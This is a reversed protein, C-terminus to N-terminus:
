YLVEDSEEANMLANAISDNYPTAMSRARPTKISKRRSSQPKPTETKYETRQTYLLEDNMAENLISALFDDTQGRASYATPTPTKYRMNSKPKLLPSANLSVSTEKDSNDKDAPDKDWPFKTEVRSTSRVPFSKFSNSPMAGGMPSTLNKKNSKSSTVGVKSGYLGLSLTKRDTDLKNQLLLSEKGLDKMVVKQAREYYHMDM